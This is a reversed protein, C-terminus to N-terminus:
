GAAEADLPEDEPTDGLARVLAKVEDVAPAIRAPDTSRFVLSVGLRGARASPYSGIEVDPYRAQVDSLGQAITGEGLSIRVARSKVPTGGHLMHQLSDYMSQMVVPIGALVFVNGIRYGPAASVPNSILEAGVPFTAMRMRAPNMDMDPRRAKMADVARQDVYMKVGFAAAVCESTIDDHTPGIGGTTFVYTFKARCENLTAIITEHVDPIVRVELLRVGRENLKLALYQINKDQTRGSLIENGIVLVCATSADSM